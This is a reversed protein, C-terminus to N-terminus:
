SLEIYILISVGGLQHEKRNQEIAINNASTRLYEFTFNDKIECASGTVAVSLFLTRKSDSAVVFNL